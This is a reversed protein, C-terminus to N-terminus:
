RRGGSQSRTLHGSLGDVSPHLPPVDDSPPGSQRDGSVRVCRVTYGGAVGTLWFRMGVGCQTLHRDRGRVALVFISVDDKILCITICTGGGPVERIVSPRPPSAPNPLGPRRTEVPWLTRRYGVARRAARSGTSPMAVPLVGNGGLPRTYASSADRDCGGM